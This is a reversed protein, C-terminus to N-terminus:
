IACSHEVGLRCKGQVEVFPSNISTQSHPVINDLGLSALGLFPVGGGVQCMSGVVISRSNVAEDRPFDIRQSFGGSWVFDSFWASVNGNVAVKKAVTPNSRAPGGAPREAQGAPPWPISGITSSESVNAERNKEAYDEKDFARSASAAPRHGQEYAVNPAEAEDSKNM